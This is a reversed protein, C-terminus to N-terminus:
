VDSFQEQFLFFIGTEGNKSEENRKARLYLLRSSNDAKVLCTHSERSLNRSSPLQGSFKLPPASMNQGSKWSKIEEFTCDASLKAQIVFPFVSISILVSSLFVANFLM